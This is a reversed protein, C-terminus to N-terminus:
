SDAARFLCVVVMFYSRSRKNMTVELKINRELPEVFRQICTNVTLNDKQDYHEFPKDSWKGKMYGYNNTTKIKNEWEEKSKCKYHNLSIDRGIIM